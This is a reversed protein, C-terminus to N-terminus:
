RQVEKLSIEQEHRRSEVDGCPNQRCRKVSVEPHIDKGRPEDQRCSVEQVIQRLMAQLQAEEEATMFAEPLNPRPRGLAAYTALGMPNYPLLRVDRAGLGFLLSVISSLNDYTATLGPILPVRPHVEVGGIRLLRRLNELILHNSTGAYKEHAKPDAFKLDFYVLDLYPLVKRQFRKWEFHGCTELTVHIKRHKLSKLLAELYDPFLTCEGGSLTVGGGSHRYFPLDRLLTETLEEVSYSKGVLRLGGGPCADVCLGCRNCRSRDIRESSDFHIADEPCAEACERSELCLHTSFLIEPRSDQTEPLHCFVCRLPCGKFFVVSRIGPGDELAHRKIDAILPLSSM